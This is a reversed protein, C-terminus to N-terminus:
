KKINRKSWHILFFYRVVLLVLLPTILPSFIQIGILWVLQTIILLVTILVFYKQMWQPLPKTRALYFCTVINLPFAWLINLNGATATHDTFFWLFIILLGTIGTSFSLFFDLWRSRSNNKYDIYTIVLAFVMLALVWFFPTLLFYTYPDLSEFEMISRERKVIPEQNLNTNAMQDMVYIPLFMHENPTAKKDIVSGLALDIGFASWSNTVLSQHILQRFTYRQILHGDFYTVRDGYVANLVDRIKSSCNNYFFDYQYDRNEPKYNTELFAFLAKTEITDLNLLQEQVWRNEMEYTWLFDEFKQRSLSYLLKGRAFKMYFNPTNFNFTGYNYVVDIGLVPDQLRFASHGFTSYLEQGPGCTIISIQAKPSLEVEQSFTMFSFGLLVLLFRIKLQM